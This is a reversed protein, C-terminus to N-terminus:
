DARMETHIPWAATIVLGSDLLSNVLLKGDQLQNIPM